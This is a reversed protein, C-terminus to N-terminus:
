EDGEGGKNFLRAELLDMTVTLTLRDAFEMLGGYRKGEDGTIKHLKEQSILIAKMM